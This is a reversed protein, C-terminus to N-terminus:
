FVVKSFHTFMCARSQSPCVNWEDRYQAHDNAGFFSYIAM